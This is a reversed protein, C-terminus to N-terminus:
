ACSGRSIRLWRRYGGANLTNPPLATLWRAINNGAATALTLKLDAPTDAAAIDIRALARRPKPKSKFTALRFAAAEIAAVSALM